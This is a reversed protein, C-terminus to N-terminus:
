SLVEPVELLSFPTFPDRRPLFSVRVEPLRRALLLALRRTMEEELAFHGVDLVAFAGGSALRNRSVLDLADHYKVDGTIYLDAGLARARDMLSAGSGTCVAVRRIAAPPRGILRAVANVRELPLLAALKRALEPLTLPVPMDGVCGFGGTLETGDARRLAGTVELPCRGSLGLEDPLWAAPGEPNADLTTHAAYLPMDHTFLLSLTRHHIDLADPFRPRLTLPHHTLLMDAGAAVAEAVAQPTPDLSLALHTIDPRASAVQIGSKDWEAAFAPPATEELIAILEHQQM